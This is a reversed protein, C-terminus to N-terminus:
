YRIEGDTKGFNIKTNAALPVSKGPEVDKLAGNTLTTVWKEAGLNKLGWVNPDTPHRVVEAVAKSFDYTKGESIHHPYLKSDANLMVVAKDIRIRFPLKPEKGCSWCKAPHGGPSKVAELDYFNPTGCSCRFVSDRLAALTNLWELETVRLDPDRLGVTFAETFTTRLLQPYIHWYIIATGGAEGTPDIAKDVVANSDDKPDFIFVPEKGFILERAPSDWSRIALVRKGMLPHSLHLIYFLLVALSHMDTSTSPLAQMRVIEPAMFDPTGSVGGKATRNTAVNDNDCVLVEGTNPDFFANGFSIDRYCLGKNHLSRFAKTLELGATILALFTTQIRGAVFDTLSKYQPDRLRMIYGFGPVGKAEALDEPWLFRDSPKGGPLDILAELASRQDPTASDQYYWKLAFDSGGWQATYVEGQGGSGLFKGVKCPQGSRSQVVQNPQLLENM